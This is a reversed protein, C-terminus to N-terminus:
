RDDGEGDPCDPRRGQLRRVFIRLKHPEAALDFEETISKWLKKGQYGLGSPMRPPATTTEDM